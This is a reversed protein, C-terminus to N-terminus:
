SSHVERGHQALVRERVKGIARMRRAGAKLTGVANPDATLLLVRNQLDQRAWWQNFSAPIRDAPCELVVLTPREDELQIEDLAPLIAMKESYLAATRPRFVERLKERLTQDVQEDAIRPLM